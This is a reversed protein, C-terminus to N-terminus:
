QKVFKLTQMGRNTQIQLLYIAPPLTTVSIELTNDDILRHTNRGLVVGTVDTITTFVQPTAEALRVTLKDTAPNTHNNDSFLDFYEPSLSYPGAIIDSTYQIVKDMDTKRFEPKGYPDRYVAANLYLRALLAKVAAQNLRAPDKDNKIVDVVSLLESEIYDM